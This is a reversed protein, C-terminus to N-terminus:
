AQNDLCQGTFKLAVGEELFVPCETRPRSVEVQYFFCSHADKEGAKNQSGIFATTTQDNLAPNLPIDLYRM